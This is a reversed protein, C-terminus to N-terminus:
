PTEGPASPPTQTPVSAEKVRVRVNGLCCSGQPNRLDCACAGAKIGATIAAILHDGQHQQVAGDIAGITHRFCYCVFTSSNTAAKQYVFERIDEVVFTQNTDVAFYVVSCSATACFRYAPATVEALSCALLAKVTVTDIVNGSQHCHPCARAASVAM